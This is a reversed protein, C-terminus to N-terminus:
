RIYFNMIASSLYSDPALCELDSYCIEVSEPDDRSPYYIKTEKMCEYVQDAQRTKKPVECEEEDGLVITNGHRTNRSPQVRAAIKTFRGSLDEEFHRPSPTSSLNRKQEGNSLSQEVVNVSLHNPSQFLTQRLSLGGKQIGPASFKGDVRTNKSGCHYLTSIGKGPANTTWHGTNDDLKSCFRSSNISLSSPVSSPARPRTFDPGGTCTGDNIPQVLKRCRDDDRRNKRSHLEAEHRMINVRLKKGGDPLNKGMTKLTCEMRAIAERLDQDSWLRFHPDLPSKEEGEGDVAASPKLTEASEEAVPQHEKEADSNGTPLPDDGDPGLSPKRKREGGREVITHGTYLMLLNNPFLGSHDKVLNISYSLAETRASKSKGLTSTEELADIFLDSSSSRSASTSELVVFPDHSEAAVTFITHASIIITDTM